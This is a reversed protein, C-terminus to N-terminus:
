KLLDITRNLMSRTAQMVSLNASYSREAERMDMVEIFSNVNPLKVYGQANSAPNAPDYRLPLDSTDVGINKVRVTEVDAARDLTSEFTITKRRYPDAGSSSGTTDQNALNEAIVRLRTTQADMGAASIDLTRNLDGTM